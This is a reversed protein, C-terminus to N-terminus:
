VRRGLEKPNSELKARSSPIDVELSPLKASNPDTFKSVASIVAEGGNSNIACLAKATSPSITNVLIASIVPIAVVNTKESDIPSKSLNKMTGNTIPRFPAELRRNIASM